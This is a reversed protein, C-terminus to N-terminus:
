CGSQRSPRRGCRLWRSQRREVGERSAPVGRAYPIAGSHADPLPARGPVPKAGASNPGVGRRALVDELPYRGGRQGHHADHTAPSAVRRHRQARRCRGADRGIGALHTQRARVSINGRHEAQLAGLVHGRMYREALAAVTLEPAPPASVPPGGRKIRDIVVAARKRAEDAVLDGHHGLTVRKLGGPGGPNSSTPREALPTSAGCRVGRPDRDWFVTDKTEVTLADVTRKTLRLESRRPM